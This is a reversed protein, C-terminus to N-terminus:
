LFGFYVYRPYEFLKISKILMALKDVFLIFYIVLVASKIM